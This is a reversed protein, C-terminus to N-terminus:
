TDSRGEKSNRTEGKDLSNCFALFHTILLDSNMSDDDKLTVDPNYAGKDLDETRFIMDQKLRSRVNTELRKKHSHKQVISFNEKIHKAVHKRFKDNTPMRAPM